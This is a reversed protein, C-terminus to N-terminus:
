KYGVNGFFEDVHVHSSSTKKISRYYFHDHDEKSSTSTSGVLLVRNRRAYNAKDVQENPNQSNDHGKLAVWSTSSVSDPGNKSGDEEWLNIKNLKCDPPIKDLLSSVTWADSKTSPLFEM